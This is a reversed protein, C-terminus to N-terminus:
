TRLCASTRTQISRRISSRTLTSIPDQGSSAWRRRPRSSSAAPSTSAGAPSCTWTTFRSSTTEGEVVRSTRCPVLLRRTPRMWGTSTTSAPSSIAARTRRSSSTTPRTQTSHVCLRPGSSTTSVSTPAGSATTASRRRGRSSGSAPCTRRATSTSGSPPGRARCRRCCRPLRLSRETRCCSTRSTRSLQATSHQRPAPRESHKSSASTFPTLRWAASTRASSQTQCPPRASRPSARRSAGASLSGSAASRTSSATRGPGSTWTESPGPAPSTSARTRQPLFSTM